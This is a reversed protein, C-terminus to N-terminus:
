QLKLVSQADQKGKAILSKITESTFDAVKGSISDEYSEHEIRIVRTLRFQGKLLDKYKGDEVTGGRNKAQTRRLLNEFDNQFRIDSKDRNQSYNKALEKLKDVLETYDSVLDKYDTVLDAVM